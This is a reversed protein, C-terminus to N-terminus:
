SIPENSGTGPPDDLRCLGSAVLRRALVLRSAEDLGIIEAILVAPADNLQEVAALCSVPAELFRGEATVRVRDTAVRDVTWPTSRRRIRDDQDLGALAVAESLAGGDPITQSRRQREREVFEAPDVTDLHRTVENLAARLEDAFGEDGRYRLPLPDDLVSPGDQLLRHLVSRYTVRMVGITLHLSIEDTSAASHKTHAPVYLIDGADLELEGLGDATWQKSGDVQVVFVDHADAHPALGVSGPPTLYSNAQVPHSIDESLERAFRRVSSQTRHLSQAIVTAGGTYLEAVRESRIADHVDRGGFRGTGAYEGTPISVGDRVVRILPARAGNAVFEDFARLSWVDSFDGVDRGIVPTRGWRHRVFDDPDIM